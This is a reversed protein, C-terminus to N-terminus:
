EMFKEFLTPKMNQWQRSANCNSNHNAHFANRHSDYIQQNTETHPAM